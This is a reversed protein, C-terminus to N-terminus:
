HGQHTQVFDYAKSLKQSHQDDTAKRVIEATVDKKMQALVPFYMLPRSMKSEPKTVKALAARLQDSPTRQLEEESRLLFTMTEFDEGLQGCVNVEHLSMFLKHADQKTLSPEKCVAVFGRQALNSQLNNLDNGEFIGIANLAGISCEVDSCISLLKLQASPDDLVETFARSVISEWFDFSLSSKDEVAACASYLDVPSADDDRYIRLIGVKDELDIRAEELM